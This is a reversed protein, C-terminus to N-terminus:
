GRVMRMLVVDRRIFHHFLGAGVHTCILLALAIGIGTHVWFTLDSFARNEPWIPPLEFLWFFHVPARYASTGIWGVIPQVALLAYLLWHVSHGARRYFAPIEAPLPAPPHTARYALRFYVIALLVVGLSEHLAFLFDQLPGSKLLEAMVFGMSLMVIVLASTIWHLLRALPTYAPELIALAAADTRDAGTRLQTDQAM